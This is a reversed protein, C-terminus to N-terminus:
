RRAFRDLFARLPSAWLGLRELGILVIVVLVVVLWL